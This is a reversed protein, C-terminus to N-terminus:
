LEIFQIRNNKTRNFEFYKNSEIIFYYARKKCSLSRFHFMAESFTPIEIFSM